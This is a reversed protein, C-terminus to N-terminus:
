LMIPFCNYNAFLLFLTRPATKHRECSPAQVLKNSFKRSFLKFRSRDFPVLTLGGRKENTLVKLNEKILFKYMENFIASRKLFFFTTVRIKMAALESAMASFVSVSGSTCSARRMPM